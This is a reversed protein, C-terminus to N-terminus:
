CSGSAKGVIVIIVGYALSRIHHNSLNGLIKIRTILKPVLFHGGVWHLGSKIWSKM